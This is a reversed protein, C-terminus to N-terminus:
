LKKTESKKIKAPAADDEGCCGDDCKEDGSSQKKMGSKTAAGESAGFGADSVAKILVTSSTKASAFTVVAKKNKLDVKAEKVGDVKKLAKEVTGACSECTMGSINLSVTKTKDAAFLTFSFILIFSILLQKM